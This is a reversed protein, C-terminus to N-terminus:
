VSLNYYVNVTQSHNIIRLAKNTLDFLFYNISDSTTIDVKTGSSNNTVTHNVTVSYVYAFDPEAIKSADYMGFVPDLCFVAEQCEPTYKLTYDVPLEYKLLAYKKCFEEIKADEGLYLNWVKYSYERYTTYDPKAPDPYGFSNYGFEKYFQATTYQSLKGVNHDIMQVARKGSYTDLYKDLEETWANIKTTGDPMLGEKNSEYELSARVKERSELYSKEMVSYRSGTVAYAAIAVSGAVVFMIINFVVGPVVVRRGKNIVKPWIFQMVIGILLLVVCVICLALYADGHNRTFDPGWAILAMVMFYISLGGLIFPTLILILRKWGALKKNDVKEEM